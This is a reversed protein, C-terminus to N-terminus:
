MSVCVKDAYAQFVLGYMAVLLRMDEESTSAATTPDSSVQPKGEQPLWIHLLWCGRVKCQHCYVVVSVRLEVGTGKALSYRHLLDGTAGM